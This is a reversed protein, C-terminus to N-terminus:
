NMLWLYAFDCILIFLGILTQSTFAQVTVLWVNFEAVRIYYGSKEICSVILNDHFTDPTIGLIRLENANLPIFTWAPTVLTKIKQRFVGAKM